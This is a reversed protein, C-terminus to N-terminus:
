NEDGTQHRCIKKKGSKRVKKAFAATWATEQSEGGGVIRCNKMYKLFIVLFSSLSEGLIGILAFLVLPLTVHRHGCFESPHYLITTM